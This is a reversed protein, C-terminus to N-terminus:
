LSQLCFTASLHNKKDFRLCASAFLIVWATWLLPSMNIRKDGSFVSFLGILREINEHSPPALLGRILWNPSSIVVLYKRRLGKKHAAAKLVRANIIRMM